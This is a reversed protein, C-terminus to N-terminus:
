RNDGSGALKNRQKRDYLKRLNHLLVEEPTLGLYQLIDFLYHSSKQIHFWFYRRISGVDRYKEQRKPEFFAATAGAMRLLAAEFEKANTINQTGSSKMEEWREMDFLDVFRLDLMKACNALYWMRDGLEKKMEDIFRQDIHSDHDRYLKKYKEMIEGTEGLLGFFPYMVYTGVGPYIATELARDVYEAWVDKPPIFTEKLVMPPLTPLEKQISSSFEEPSPRTDEPIWVRNFFTVLVWTKFRYWLNRM